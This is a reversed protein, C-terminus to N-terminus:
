FPCSVKAMKRREIVEFSKSAIETKSIHILGVFAIGQSRSLGRGSDGNNKSKDVEGEATCTCSSLGACTCSKSDDNSEFMVIDDEGDESEGSDGM